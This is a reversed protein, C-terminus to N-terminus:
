VLLIAEAEEDTTFNEFVFVWPSSSEMKIEYMHGLREILTSFMEDMDGPAYIPETSINLHQRDCRIKPDRLHCAKCSAPCNVIM